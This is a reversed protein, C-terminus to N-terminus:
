LKNVMYWYDRLSNFMKLGRQLEEEPWEHLYTLGPEQTSIFLIYCRANPLSLGHRYAALQMCHENYKKADKEIQKFGKADKDKTKFDLIVDNDYAQAHLDVKGGYGDKCFSAEAIWDTRRNFPVKLSAYAQMIIEFNLKEEETEQPFDSFNQGKFLKELGDHIENGRKAAQMAIQKSALRIQSKWAVLDDGPSYPWTSAAELIQNEKWVDLGPKAAMQMVTTVSPVLNLKRADALTTDREGKGTAKPVTYLPTGDQQYWHQAM